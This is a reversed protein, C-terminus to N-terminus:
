HSSNLRTSKRDRADCCQLNANPFRQRAATICDATYDIGTYDSSIELLFRTTRGGGIGIDLLKKGRITPGLAELIVAEPKLIFEFDRYWDVTGTRAYAAMNTADVVQKYASKSQM